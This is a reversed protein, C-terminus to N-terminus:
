KDFLNKAFLCITLPLTSSFVTSMNKSRDRNLIRWGGSTKCIEVTADDHEIECCRELVKMAAAPDTTPKFTRQPFDFALVDADTNCLFSGSCYDRLCGVKRWGMVHEACFADLETLEKETPKSM